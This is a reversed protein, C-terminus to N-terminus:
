DRTRFSLPLSPFFWRGSATGGLRDTSRSFRIFVRSEFRKNRMERTLRDASSAVVERRWNEEKGRCFGIERFALHNICDENDM